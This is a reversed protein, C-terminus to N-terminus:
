RSVKKLVKEILNEKILNEKVYASGAQGHHFILSRNKYYIKIASVLENVNESKIVKGSKIKNIINGASGHNCIVPRECALYEFIKSPIANKFLEDKKLPAVCVSAMKIHKILEIRKISKIFYVNKLKKSKVLNKLFSYQVGDGIFKFNIPFNQLKEASYIITELNQALGFNGSYLITFEKDPSVKMSKSKKIFDLSVGNILNQSPKNLYNYKKNIYKNFDPVAFIFGEASKYILREVKKALKYLAGKKMQGLAVVSDPWLDRIDLWYGKSSIAKYFVGILGVFLPPSSVIVIDFNKLRASQLMGSFMFILYHILKKIKTQRNTAFALTRIITLNNKKEIDVLKNKFGPFYKGSPYNPMECIVSVKIGKKTMISVYDGWRSSSAGLEPPFYQTILLVQM